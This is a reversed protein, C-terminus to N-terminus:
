PFEEPQPRRRTCEGFVNRKRRSLDVVNRVREGDFLRDQGFRQGVNHVHKAEDCGRWKESQRNDPGSGHSSKGYLRCHPDARAFPERYIHVLLAERSHLLEPGRTDDIHAARVSARLRLAKGTRPKVHHKVGTAACRRPLHGEVEATGSPLDNQEAHCRLAALDVKDRADTFFVANHHRESIRRPIEAACQIEENLVFDVQCGHVTLSGSSRPWSAISRMLCLGPTARFIIM